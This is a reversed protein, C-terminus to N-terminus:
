IPGIEHNSGKDIKLAFLLLITFLLESALLVWMFLNPSGDAIMGFLRGGAISVMVLLSAILGLRVSGPRYACLGFFLGIGLAMGGYTARMDIMASSTGPASGTVFMSIFDPVLIFGLGFAVFLGCSVWLLVKPFSM